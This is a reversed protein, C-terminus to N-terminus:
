LLDPAPREEFLRSEALCNRSRACAVPGPPSVLCLLHRQPRSVSGCFRSTIVGPKCGSDEQTKGANTLSCATGCCCLGRWVYLHRRVAAVPVGCRTTIYVLVESRACFQVSRGGSHRSEILRLNPPAPVVEALFPPRLDPVIGPRGRTRRLCQTGFAGREERPIYTASPSVAPAGSFRDRQHTWRTQHTRLKPATCRHQPVTSPLASEMGAAYVRVAVAERESGDPASHRSQPRREDCCRVRRQRRLPFAARHVQPQGGNSSYGCPACSNFSTTRM